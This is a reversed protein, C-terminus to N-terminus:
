IFKVCHSSTVFLSSFDQVTQLRCMTKKFSFKQSEFKMSTCQELAQERFPSLGNSSSMAAPHHMYADTFWAMAESLPKAGSLRWAMMQALASPFTQQLIDAVKRRPRSTNILTTGTYIYTYTHSHTQTHTHTTDYWIMEYWIMDYCIMDYRVM